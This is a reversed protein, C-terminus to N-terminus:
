PRSDRRWQASALTHGRGVLAQCPRDACVCVCVHMVGCGLQGIAKCSCPRTPDERGRTAGDAAVLSFVIVSSRKESLSPSSSQRPVAQQHAASRLKCGSARRSHRRRRVSGSSGCEAGPDFTSIVHPPGLGEGVERKEIAESTMSTAANGRQVSWRGLAARLGPKVSRHVKTRPEPGM